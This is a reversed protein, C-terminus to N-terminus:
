DGVWRVFELLLTILISATIVYIIGAALGVMVPEGCTYIM